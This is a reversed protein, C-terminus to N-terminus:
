NARVPRHAKSHSRLELDFVTISHAAALTRLMRRVLPGQLFKIQEELQNPYAAHAMSRIVGTCATDICCPPRLLADVCTSRIRSESVGNVLLVLLRHPFAAAHGMYLRYWLQGHASLTTRWLAHLRGQQAESLQTGSDVPENLLKRFAVVHRPQRPGDDDLLRSGEDLTKLMASGEAFLVAAPMHDDCNGADELDEPPGDCAAGFGFRAAFKRMHKARRAECRFVRFLVTQPAQNALV